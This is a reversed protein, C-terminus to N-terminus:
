FQNTFYSFIIRPNYFSNRFLSFLLRERIHPNATLNKPQWNKYSAKYLEAMEQM